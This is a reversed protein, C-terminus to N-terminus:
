ASMFAVYTGRGEESFWELLRLALIAVCCDACAAAVVESSGIAVYVYLLSYLCSPVLFLLLSTRMCTCCRSCALM